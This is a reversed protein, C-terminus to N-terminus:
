EYLCSGGLVMSAMLELCAGWSVREMGALALFPCLVCHRAAGIELIGVWLIEEFCWRLVAVGFLFFGSCTFSGPHHDNIEARCQGGM